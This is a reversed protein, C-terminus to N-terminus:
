PAPPDDLICYGRLRLLAPAQSSALEQLGRSFSPFRAEMYKTRGNSDAVGICAYIWTKYVDLGCCNKRRIKFMVFRRLLIPFPQM